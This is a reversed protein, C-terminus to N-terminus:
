KTPTEVVMAAFEAEAAVKITIASQEAAKRTDILEIAKVREAVETERATIVLEAARTRGNCGTHGGFYIATDCNTASM